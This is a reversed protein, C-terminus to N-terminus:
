SAEKLSYGMKPVLWFVLGLPKIKANLGPELDRLWAGADSPCREPPRFAHSALYAFPLFGENVRLKSVVAHEKSYLKVSKGAYTFEMTPGTSPGPPPPRVVVQSEGSNQGGKEVKGETLPPAPPRAGDTPRVPPMPVSIPDKPLVQDHIVLEVLKEEQALMSTAERPQPPQQGKAMLRNDISEAERGAATLELKGDDDRTIRGRTICTSFEPGITNYALGPWWRLRIADAVQTSTLGPTEMLVIRIMSFTTPLGAPRPTGAEARRKMLIKKPAPPRPPQQKREPEPDCPGGLKSRLEGRDIRELLEDRYDDRGRQYEADFLTILATSDWMDCLMELLRDHRQDKTETM